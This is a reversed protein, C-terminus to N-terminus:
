GELSDENEEDEEKLDELEDLRLNIQLTEGKERSSVLQLINQIHYRSVMEKEMVDNLDEWEHWKNLFYLAAIITHETFVYIDDPPIIQRLFVVNREFEEIIEKKNM